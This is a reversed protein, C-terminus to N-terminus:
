APTLPCAVLTKHTGRPETRQYLSTGRTTSLCALLDPMDDRVTRNQKDTPQNFSIQKNWRKLTRSHCAWSQQKSRSNETLLPTSSYGFPKEMKLWVSKGSLRLTLWDTLNQRSCRQVTMKWAVVHWKHWSHSFIWFPMKKEEKERGEASEVCVTYHEYILVYRRGKVLLILIM